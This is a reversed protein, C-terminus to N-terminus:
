RHPVRPEPYHQGPLIVGADTREAAADTADEYALECICDVTLVRGPWVGSLAPHDMDRCTITSQYKRFQTASLDVLTGNVTRRMQGAGSIQQLTQSVGRASYPPIGIPSLRLLTIDTLPM